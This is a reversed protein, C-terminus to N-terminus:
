GEAAAIRALLMAPLKPAPMRVFEQPAFQLVPFRNGTPLLLLEAILGLDQETTQDLLAELKALKSEPGDGRAFGAAYELQQICPYLPSNQRHSSCFYCLRAHATGVLTRLLEAALRSKGIGAEGSVVVIQGSGQRADNWLEALLAKEQERNVMPSLEGRHRSEFRGGIVRAAVVEFVRKQEPLGKLKVLGLDRWEFSGGILRHTTESVLVAGPPALEQLRAALNPTDGAIDLGLPGGVGVFYM